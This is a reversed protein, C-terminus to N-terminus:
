EDGKSEMRIQGNSVVLTDDSSYFMEAESLIEELDVRGHAWYEAVQKGNVKLTAIKNWKQRTM